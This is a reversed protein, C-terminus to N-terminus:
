YVASFCFQSHCADHTYKCFVVRWGQPLTAPSAVWGGLCALVTRCQSWVVVQEATLGMIAANSVALCESSSSITRSPVRCTVDTCATDQISRKPARSSMWAGGTSASTSLTSCARMWDEDSLTTDSAIQRAVGISLEAASSSARVRDCTCLLVIPLSMNGLVAAILHAVDPRPQWLMIWIGRSIKM